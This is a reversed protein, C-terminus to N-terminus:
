KATFQAAAEERKQQLISRGRKISSNRKVEPPPAINRAKHGKFAAQIKVAAAEEEATAGSAEAAPEASYTPTPFISRDGAAKVSADSLGATSLLSTLEEATAEPAKSELILFAAGSAMGMAHLSYGAEGLSHDLEDMSVAALGGLGRGDANQVTFFKGTSLAAANGEAISAMSARRDIVFKNPPMRRSLDVKKVTNQALGMVVPADMVPQLDEAVCDVKAEWVSLAANDPGYPGDGLLAHCYYGEPALASRWKNFDLGALFDNFATATDAVVAHQVLFFCGTAATGAKESMSHAIEFMEVLPVPGENLREVDLQSVLGSEADVTVIMRAMPLRVVKNSTAAPVLGFAAMEQEDIVGDGDLDAGAIGTVAPPAFPQGSHRGAWMTNAAFKNAGVTKSRSGLNNFTWDPFSASIAHLMKEFKAREIM